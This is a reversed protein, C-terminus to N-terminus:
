GTKEATEEDRFASGISDPKRRDIEPYTPEPTSDIKEILERVEEGYVRIIEEKNTLGTTVKKVADQAQSDWFIEGNDVLRSVEASSSFYQCESM